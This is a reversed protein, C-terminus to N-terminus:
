KKWQTGKFEGMLALQYIKKATGEGARSIWEISPNGFFLVYQKNTGKPQFLLVAPHTKFEEMLKECDRSFASMEQNTM